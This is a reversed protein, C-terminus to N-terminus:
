ESTLCTELRFSKQLGTWRRLRSRLFRFSLSNEHLILKGNLQRGVGVVVAIVAVVVAASVEDVAAVIELALLQNFSFYFTIEGSATQQKKTNTM